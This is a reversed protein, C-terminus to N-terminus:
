YVAAPRPEDHEHVPGLRGVDGLRHAVQRAQTPQAADHDPALIGSRRRDGRRVELLAVQRDLEVRYTLGTVTDSTPWGTRSTGRKMRLRTRAMELRRTTAAHPPPLAAFGADGVGVMLKLITACFPLPTDPVPVMTLLVSENMTVILSLPNTGLELWIECTCLPAQALAPPMACGRECTMASEDPAATVWLM